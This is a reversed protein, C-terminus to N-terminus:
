YGNFRNEPEVVFFKELLTDM